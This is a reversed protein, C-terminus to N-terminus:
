LHIFGKYANVHSNTKLKDIERSNIHKLKGKLDRFGSVQTNENHTGLLSTM